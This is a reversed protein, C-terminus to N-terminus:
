RLPAYRVKRERLAGETRFMLVFVLLLGVILIRLLAFDEGALFGGFDPMFRTGIFISELLVAGFLAGLMNGRGGIIMMAWIIVTQDLAFVDPAVVTLWYAIGVGGLSGVAGGLM